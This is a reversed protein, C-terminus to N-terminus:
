CCKGGGSPGRWGAPEPRRWRSSSKRCSSRPPLLSANSLHFLIVCLAFIHISPDLFISWPPTDRDNPRAIAMHDEPSPPCPGPRIAFLSAAAPLGLLATILFISQQGLHTSALGFAGAALAGGVSAYRANGGLRESFSDHGCLSLTLAAIAPTIVVSGFAHLVQAAWVAPVSPAVGIMLASVAVAAIAIATLDRKHHVRDVLAGGPLQGCLGAITGASLALGVDTLSWGQSVLWVSVFPGFGTQMASVFFNLAHVANRGAQFTAEDDAPLVTLTL